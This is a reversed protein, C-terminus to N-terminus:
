VEYTTRDACVVAIGDFLRQATIPATEPESLISDGHHTLFLTGIGKGKLGTCVDKYSQHETTGIVADCGDGIIPLLDRCDETDATYIIRKGEAEILFSFSPLRDKDKHADLFATVKMNEDEFVVGAELPCSAIEIGRFYDETNRLITSFAEWVKPDHCFVQIPSYDPMRKDWAIHKRVYFLFYGLSGIHDMQASSILVKNTKLMDLGMFAVSRECGDGADFVYLAGGVEFIVCAHRRDKMPLKDSLTGLFHLKM